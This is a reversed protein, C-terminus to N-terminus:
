ARPSMMCQLHHHVPVLTLPYPHACQLSAAGNCPARHVVGLRMYVFKGANGQIKFVVQGGAAPPDPVLDVHDPIFPVKDADCPEWTFASCSLVCALFLVSSLLGASRMISARHLHRSSIPFSGEQVSILCCGFHCQRKAIYPLVIPKCVGAM